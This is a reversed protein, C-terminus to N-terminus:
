YDNQPTEFSNDANTEGDLYVGKDDDHGGAAFPDERNPTPRRDKSRSSGIFVNLFSKDYDDEEDAPINDGTCPVSGYGIVDNYDNANEFSVDKRADSFGKTSDSFDYHPGHQVFYDMPNSSPLSYPTYKDDM